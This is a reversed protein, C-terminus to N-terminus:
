KLKLKSYVKMTLPNVSKLYINRGDVTFLSLINQSTFEKVFDSWPLKEQAYYPAGATGNTIQWIKRKLKIRPGQYGKKYLPMRPTIKLLSYNHEDGSLVAVVKKNRNILRLLQDRREIIGYKAKQGFAYPRIRNTGFYWMDNNAHGGNPFLPTHFTVFIHDITKDHSYYKLKSRFWKLQNDMIYGHPNGGYLPISEVAPAYWYNSNLVIFATNGYEFSYVNEKYSPFNIHMPDKDAWSNDESVPGNM